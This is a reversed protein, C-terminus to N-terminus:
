KTLKKYTFKISLIAYIKDTVGLQYNTDALRKRLRVRSVSRLQNNIKLNLDGVIDAEHTFERDSLSYGALM